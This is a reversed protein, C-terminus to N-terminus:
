WFKNRPMDHLMVTKWGPIRCGTTEQPAILTEKTYPAADSCSAATRAGSEQLAQTTSIKPYRVPQASCLCCKGGTHPRWSSTIRSRKVQTLRSLSCFTLTQHLFHVLPFCSASRHIYNEDIPNCLYATMQKNYCKRKQTALLIVDHLYFLNKYM